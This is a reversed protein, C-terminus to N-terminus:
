PRVGGLAWAEGKHSSVPIKPTYGASRHRFLGRRRWPAARTSPGARRQGWGASPGTGGVPEVHSPSAGLSPASALSVMPNKKEAMVCLWTRM